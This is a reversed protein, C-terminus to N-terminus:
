VQSVATGVAAQATAAQAAFQAGIEAWLSGVLQAAGTVATSELTPVAAALQAVVAMGKVTATVPNTWVAPNAAIDALAPGIVPNFAKYADNLLIDGFSKLLTSVTSPAAIPTSM